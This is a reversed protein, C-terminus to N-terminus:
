VSTQPVRRNVKQWKEILRFILCKNRKLRRDKALKLYIVSILWKSDSLKTEKDARVLFKQFVLYTGNIQKLIGLTPTFLILQLLNSFCLLFM